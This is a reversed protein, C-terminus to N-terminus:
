SMFRLTNALDSDTAAGPGYRARAYRRLASALANRDGLALRAALAELTEARGRVFGNEALLAEFRTFAAPPADLPADRDRSKRRRNRLARVILAAVVIGFLVPISREPAAVAADYFSGIAIRLYDLLAAVSRTRTESLTPVGPPTADFVEFGAGNKMSPVYAEAWAHAHKARVVAYGGFGNHEVVRFGAVLRSPIGLVRALMVFASAFFECHGSRHVLLFDLLARQGPPTPPRDLTYTFDGILHRVIADARARDDTAGATWARALKELQPALALPVGLDDDTPM